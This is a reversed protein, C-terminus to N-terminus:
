GIKPLSIFIKVLSCDLSSVEEPVCCHLVHVLRVIVRVVLVQVSLCNGRPELLSLLVNDSMNLVAIQANIQPPTPILRTSSTPLAGVESGTLIAGYLHLAELKLTNLESTCHAATAISSLRSLVVPTLFLLIHCYLM